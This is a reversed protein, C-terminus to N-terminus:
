TVVMRLVINKVTSVYITLWTLIFSTTSGTELVNEYM